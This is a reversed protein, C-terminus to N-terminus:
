VALARPLGPGDPRKREVRLAPQRRDELPPRFETTVAVHEATGIPIQCTDWNVRKNQIMLMEGRQCCLELAGIIRDHLLSGVNQHEPRNMQQLATDLL